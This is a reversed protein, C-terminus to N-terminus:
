RAYDFALLLPRSREPSPHDLARMSGIRAFSDLEILNEVFHRGCIFGRQSPAIVKQVAKKIPWNM